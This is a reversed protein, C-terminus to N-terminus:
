EKRRYVSNPFDCHLSLWPKEFLPSVRVHPPPPLLSGFYSVLSFGQLNYVGSILYIIWCRKNGLYRPTCRSRLTGSGASRCAEPGGAARAGRPRDARGYDGARHRPWSRPCVSTLGNYMCRIDQLEQCIVGISRGKDGARHRQWSRPCVSTLVNYM